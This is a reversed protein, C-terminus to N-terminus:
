GGGVSVIDARCNPMISYGQTYPASTDYQRFIGKLEIPWQPAPSGDIDTDPDIFLTSIETSDSIVISTGQGSAPWPFQPDPQVIGSIRVYESEYSEPDLSLERLTVSQPILETGSSILRVYLSIDPVIIETLGYYQDVVGSVLISDGISFIRGGGAEMAKTIAIGGTADELHYFWRNASATVNVSNVVGLITVFEGIRDPIKDADSDIRVHAIPEARYFIVDDTLPPLYGSPDNAAGDDPDTMDM